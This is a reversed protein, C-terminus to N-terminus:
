LLPLVGKVVNISEVVKRIKGSDIAFLLVLGCDFSGTNALKLDLRTDCVQFVSMEEGLTVPNVFLQYEDILECKILNSVFGAGGCVMIGKNKKRSTGESIDGTALVTNDRGKSEPDSYYEHKYPWAPSISSEKKRAAEIRKDTM